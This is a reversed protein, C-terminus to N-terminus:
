SLIIGALDHVPYVAQEWCSEESPSTCLSHEDDLQLAFWVVIADLTGEKIVPVGIKDPKRTALSKLEQLIYSSKICKIHVHGLLMDGEM